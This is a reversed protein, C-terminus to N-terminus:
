VMASHAPLLTRIPIHARFSDVPQQSHVLPQGAAGADPLNILTHGDMDINM